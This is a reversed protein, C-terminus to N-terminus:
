KFVCLVYPLLCESLNINRKCNFQLTLTDLQEFISFETDGFCVAPDGVVVVIM